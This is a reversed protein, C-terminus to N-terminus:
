VAMIMVEAARLMEPGNESTNAAVGEMLDPHSEVTNRHEDTLSSVLVTKVLPTSIGRIEKTEHNAHKGLIENIGIKVFKELSEHIEPAHIEHNRETVVSMAGLNTLDILLTPLSRCTLDVLSPIPLANLCRILGLIM